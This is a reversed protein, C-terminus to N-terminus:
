KSSHVKQKNTQKASSQQKVLPFHLFDIKTHCINLFCHWYNDNTEQVFLMFIVCTHIYLCLAIHIYEINCCFSKHEYTHAIHVYAIYYVVYM